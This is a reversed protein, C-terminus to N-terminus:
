LDLSGPIQVLQHSNTCLGRSLLLYNALLETRRLGVTCRREMRSDEKRRLAKEMGEM